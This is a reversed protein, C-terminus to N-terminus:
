LSEPEEPDDEVPTLDATAADILKSLEIAKEVSPDFEFRIDPAERLQLSRAIRTRVLGRASDLGRQATRRAADDGLVSYLITAHRLDSSIDVRTITLLGLRPDRLEYLIVQSAEQKIRQAVRAARRSAM